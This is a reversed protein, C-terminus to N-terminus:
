PLEHYPGHSQFTTPSPTGFEDIKTSYTRGSLRGQRLASRMEQVVPHNPFARELNRIEVNVWQSSMQGRRLAATGGKFEVVIVEGSESRYISDFGRTTSSPGRPNDFLKTLGQETAMEHGQHAGLDHAFNKKMQDSGRGRYPGVENDLQGKNKYESTPRATVKSEPTPQAPVKKIQGGRKLFEDLTETTGSKSTTAGADAITEVPGATNGVSKSGTAASALEDAPGERVIKGADDLVQIQPKPSDLETVRIKFGQADGEITTLTGAAVKGEATVSRILRVARLSTGVAGVASLGVSLYGMGQLVRAADQQEPDFVDNAGAGLSYLNGKEVSEIGSAIGYAAMGGEIAIAGAIGAASTPPFIILILTGLTGLGVVISKATEWSEASAIDDNVRYQVYPSAVVLLDRVIPRLELYDFGPESIRQILADYDVRRQAIAALVTGRVEEASGGGVNADIIRYGQPGLPELYPRIRSRSARVSEVSSFPSQTQGDASALANNAFDPRPIPNQDSEGAAIQMRKEVPMWDRSAREERSARSKSAWVRQEAHCSPCQDGTVLNRAYEREVPSQARYFRDLNPLSHRQVATDDIQRTKEALVLSSVQEASLKEEIFKQWRELNKQNNHLRVKGANIVLRKFKEHESSTSNSDKSTTSQKEDRLTAAKDERSAIPGNTTTIAVNTQKHFLTAPNAQGPQIDYGFHFRRGKSAENLFFEVKGNKATVEAVYDGESLNCENLRYAYNTGPTEFVIQRDTCSIIVRTVKQASPATAPKRQITSSDSLLSPSTPDSQKGAVSTRALTGRQQIVHTLEHALLQQGSFSGPHFQGQGFVVHSGVTYARASVAGASDQARADTHVRVQSFDHDFRSEMFSRTATPLPSGPSSLVSNVIPPAAIGGIPSSAVRQLTGISEQKKKKCESCEGEIDSKGCACQRQVLPTSAPQLSLEKPKESHRQKLLELFHKARKKRTKAKTKKKDDAFGVAKNVKDINSLDTPKLKKFDLFFAPIIKAAVSAENAKNPDSSLDEGIDNGIEEYTDRGTIQIFGRGRFNFGEDAANGMRGGYVRNGIAEEGEEKLATADELDKVHSPFTKLLNEPRYKLSETKPVFGSEAEVQALVNAVQEDDTIGAESLEDIVLEMNENIKAQRAARAAAKRETKSTRKTQLMEGSRETRQGLSIQPSRHRNPEPMRMVQEAVRDAEKEYKDGPENVTLKPQLRIPTPSISVQRQLTPGSPSAAKSKIIPQSTRTM